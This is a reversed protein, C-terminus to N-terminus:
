TRSHKVAYISRCAVILQKSLKIHQEVETDESNLDHLLLKNFGTSPDSHDQSEAKFV